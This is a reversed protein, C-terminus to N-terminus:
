ETFLLSIKENHDYYYIIKLNEMLHKRADVLLNGISESTMNYKYSLSIYDLQNVYYDILIVMHKNRVGSNSIFEKQISKPLNKFRRNFEKQTIEM